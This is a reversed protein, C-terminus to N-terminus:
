RSRDFVARLQPPLDAPSCPASELLDFSGRYQSAKDGHPILCFVVEDDTAHRQAPIINEKFIAVLEDAFGWRVKVRWPNLRIEVKAGQMLKKRREVLEQAAAMARKGRRDRIRDDLTRIASEIRVKRGELDGVQVSAFGSRVADDERLYERLCATVRERTSEIEDNLESLEEQMAALQKEAELYDTEEQRETALKLRDRCLEIKQELDRRRALVSDVTGANPDIAALQAEAEALEIRASEVAAAPNENKTKM